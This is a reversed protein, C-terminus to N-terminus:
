SYYDEIIENIYREKTILRQSPHYRDQIKKNTVFDQPLDKIIKRFINGGATCLILDPNIEIIQSLIIEKDLEYALEIEKNKSTSKAPLKQINIYAIKNLSKCYETYTKRKDLDKFNKVGNQIAYSTYIIPLFTQPSDRKKGKSRENNLNEVLSWGGGTSNEGDRPEKLIWLIKIKSNEYEEINVIGDQILSRNEEKKNEYYKSIKNELSIIRSRFDKNM